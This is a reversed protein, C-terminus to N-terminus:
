NSFVSSAWQELDSPARNPQKGPDSLKYGNDATNSKAEIYEALAKGNAQMEELTAGHLLSAPVGTDKSVQARWENTQKEAKLADLEKQLKLTKAEAKQQETMQSEKLQELEDAASKNAKARKEWERSHAVAEEYKAKYDIGATEGNPETVTQDENTQEAM